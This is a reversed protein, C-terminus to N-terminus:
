MSSSIDLTRGGQLREIFGGPEGKACGHEHLGPLCSVLRDVFGPVEYSERGYLEELDLTMRLVPKHNFINPGPFTRIELIHM